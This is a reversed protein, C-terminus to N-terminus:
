WACEPLLPSRKRVAMRWRKCWSPRDLVLGPRFQRPGSARQERTRRPVDGLQRQAPQVVAL